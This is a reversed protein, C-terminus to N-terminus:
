FDKTIQKLQEEDAVTVTQNQILYSRQCISLVTSRHTTVICTRGKRYKTINELLAHETIVDLASTAEDLLLVPADDLLARAISIRQIQGKSLGDGSEGVRTDLGEPLASVFDYACAIKLAEKLMADTADPNTIRLNEAITGSFLTNDQPVYSFLRRTAPSAPLTLDFGEGYLQISGSHVPMMGLLLRLLTTKGGGSPGVVAVIEGAEARFQVNQFVEKGSRYAFSVNEARIGISRSQLLQDVQETEGPEEAPLRTIEM